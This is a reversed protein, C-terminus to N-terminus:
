PDAAFQLAGPKADLTIPTSGIKEGDGVLDTSEGEITVSRGRLIHAHEHGIHGGEFVKPLLRLM